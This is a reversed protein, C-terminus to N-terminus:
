VEKEEKLEASHKSLRSQLQGNRKDCAKKEKELENIRGELEEKKTVAARCRGEAM